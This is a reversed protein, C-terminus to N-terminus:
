VRSWGRLDRYDSNRGEGSRGTPGETGTWRRPTRCVDWIRGQAEDMGSCDNQRGIIIIADVAPVLCVRM